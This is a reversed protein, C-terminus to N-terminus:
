CNKTIYIYTSQNLLLSQKVIEIQFVTIYFDIEINYLRKMVSLLQVIDSFSFVFKM